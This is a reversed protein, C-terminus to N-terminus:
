RAVASCAMTSHTRVQTMLLDLSRYYRPLPVTNNVNKKPALSTLHAVLGGDGPKKAAPM